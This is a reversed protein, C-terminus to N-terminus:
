LNFSPSSCHDCCVKGGCLQPKPSLPLSPPPQKPLLRPSNPRSKKLNGPLKLGADKKHRIASSIEVGCLFMNQGMWHGCKFIYSFCFCCLTISLQQHGSVLIILRVKDFALACLAPKITHSLPNVNRNTQGYIGKSLCFSIWIKDLGTTIKLKEWRPLVNIHSNQATITKTISYKCVVFILRKDDGLFSWRGERGSRQLVRGLLFTKGVGKGPNRRGEDGRHDTYVAREEKTIADLTVDAQGTVRALWHDIANHLKHTKGFSVFSYLNTPFHLEELQSKLRCPPQSPHKPQINHYLTRYTKCKM